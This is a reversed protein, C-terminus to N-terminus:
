MLRVQKTRLPFWPPGGSMGFKWASAQRDNM